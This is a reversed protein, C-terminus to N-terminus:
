FPIVPLVLLTHKDQRHGKSFGRRASPNSGLLARDERLPFLWLSRHWGKTPQSAGPGQPWPPIMPVVDIDELLESLMDYLRRVSAADAFLLAVTFNGPRLYLPYEGFVTKGEWSQLRTHKTVHINM